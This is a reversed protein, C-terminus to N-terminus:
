LVNKVSMTMTYVTNKQTMVVVVSFTNMNLLIQPMFLYVKTVSLSLALKNKVKTADDGVYQLGWTGLM